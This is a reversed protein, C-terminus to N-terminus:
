DKSSVEEASAPKDKRTFPGCCAQMMEAMRDACSGTDDEREGGMSAFVTRMKREMAPDCCSSRDSAVDNAQRKEECM